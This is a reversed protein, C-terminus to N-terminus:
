SRIFYAFQVSNTEILVMIYYLLTMIVLLMVFHIACVLTQKYRAYFWQWTCIQLYMLHCDIRSSRVFLKFPYILGYSELIHQWKWDGCFTCHWPLYFVGFGSSHYYVNLTYHCVFRHTLALFVYSWHTLFPTLDKKYLGMSIDLSTLALYYHRTESLLAIVREEGSM